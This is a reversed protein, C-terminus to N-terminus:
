RGLGTFGRRVWRGTGFVIGSVIWFLIIPVLQFILTILPARVVDPFRQDATILIYIPLGVFWLVSIVVGIRQWGSLRVAMRKERRIFRDPALETYRAGSLAV